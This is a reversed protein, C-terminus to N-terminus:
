SEKLFLLVGLVIAILWPAVTIVGSLPGRNGRLAKVTEPHLRFGGKDMGGLLNEASELLRPLRGVSDSLTKMGDMLRAQPGLNDAMWSEILPRSLEWMNVDPALTRGVGETVLMSKQLLLLQPQAQMDFTETVQFLQGLLRAVSIENLARGMIPEAISRCAQTFGEVSKDAPVWGAEFHVEAARRYNGTLFGLLMEGLYRRTQRDIRGMIGFDVAVLVGEADVFMNGPHLDAHFFGDRFVMNFFANAANGVLVRPDLGAAILKDPEDIRLGRVREQTMVRRGTRQWDITPVRFTPDDAFNEALECAAAAEFRLDMEIIVSEEFARANEVPRLRRWQPQAFEVLRSLWFLLDIDRRFAEEVGPRLVKVAVERTHGEADPATIAFHVQAISAAAVPVPDFVSFASELPRDLETEVTRRVDEFPFPPLSDQLNSLDAAVEEGMLDARTSLAQGLKIFSPGLEGFAAALKEGPRGPVNRRSAAKAIWVAPKAVGLRELPFLADHRALVRAITILRTLNRLHGIM